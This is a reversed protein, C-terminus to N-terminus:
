LFLTAKDRIFHITADFFCSHQYVMIGDNLLKAAFVNLDSKNCCNQKIVECFDGGLLNQSSAGQEELSAFSPLLWAIEENEQIYLVASLKTIKLYALLASGTISQDKGGLISAESIESIQNGSLDKVKCKTIREQIGWLELVVPIDKGYATYNYLLSPKSEVSNTSNTM